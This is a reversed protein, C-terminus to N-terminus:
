AKAKIMEAVQDIAQLQRDRCQPLMPKWPTQLFGKLHAPSINGRCFKVTSRFNDPSSWNSGTPTQDFGAKDLDIYAQVGVNSTKLKANYHWNAQLVSRPVRKFFDGPHKWCYDSWMWARVGNKEIEKVFFEFDHWWLDHQRIVVYDYKTQNEFNEEDYGMHFFRPKDFLAVVEAILEACTKYYGPTSVQRSWTGLWTDHCTSFNMKPIPEIGLARVKALEERLKAVPWSGEVAIEPHSEYQIGEGLDIVVQNMGADAMRKLVENWLPEDFRLKPAAASFSLDEKPIGGWEEVPRDSWMNMGLHVLLGWSLRDAASAQAAAKSPAAFLGTSTGAALTAMTAQVFERRSCDSQTISSDTM